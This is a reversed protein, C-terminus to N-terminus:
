ATGLINYTTASHKRHKVCHTPHKLYHTAARFGCRFRVFAHNNQRSHIVSRCIQRRVGHRRLTRRCKDAGGASYGADPKMPRASEKAQGGRACASWSSLHLARTQFDSWSAASAPGHIPAPPCLQRFRHQVATSVTNRNRFRRKFRRFAQNQRKLCRKLCRFASPIPTKSM